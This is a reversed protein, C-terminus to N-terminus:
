WRWRWASGCGPDEGECCAALRGRPLNPTVARRKDLNKNGASM